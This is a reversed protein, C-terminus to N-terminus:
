VARMRAEAAPEVAGKKMMNVIVQEADPNGKEREQYLHVALRAHQTDSLSWEFRHFIQRTVILCEALDEAKISSVSETVGYQLWQPTVELAEAIKHINSVSINKGDEWMSVSARSVEVRRALEAKTMSKKERAIKIREAIM